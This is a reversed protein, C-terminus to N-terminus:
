RWRRRRSIARDAQGAGVDAAAEVTVPRAQAVVGAGGKEGVAQLDALVHPAVAQRCIAPNHEATM